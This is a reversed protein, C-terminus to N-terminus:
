TEAHNPLALRSTDEDGEEALVRSAQMRQIDANSIDGTVYV